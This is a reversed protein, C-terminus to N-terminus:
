KTHLLFPSFFMLQSRGRISAPVTMDQLYLFWKALPLPPRAISFSLVNNNIPFRVTSHSTSQRTNRTSWQFAILSLIIYKKNPKPFYIVKNSKHRRFLLSLEASIIANTMQSACRMWGCCRWEVTRFSPKADNSVSETRIVAFHHFNCKCQIDFRVGFYEYLFLKPRLFIGTEQKTKTPKSSAQRLVNASRSHFIRDTKHSDVHVHCQM